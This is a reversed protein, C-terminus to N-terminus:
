DPSQFIEAVEVNPEARGHDEAPGVVLAHVLHPTCLEVLGSVILGDVQVLPSLAPTLREIREARPQARAAQVSPLHARSAKYARWIRHCQRGLIIRSHVQRCVRCWLSQV